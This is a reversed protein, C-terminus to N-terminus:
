EVVFGVPGDVGTGGRQRGSEAKAAPRRIFSQGGPWAGSETRGLFFLEFQSPTVFRDAPTILEDAAVPEVINATIIIALETDEREYAASRGLAGIIPLDGLGPLQDINDTFNRQLLGAISFSQGDKLDITTSARRTVLGPIVFDALIIGSAPDLESVEPEVVLNITDGIVTPTFSLRVGFERFEIQINVGAAGNANNVGAPIPFEGGALFSATQGSVAILNPEALVSVIGKTELADLLLDVDVAGIPFSGFAAAFKDPDQILGNLFQSGEGVQAGNPVFNAATPRGSSFSGVERGNGFFIDTSIGVEKLATRQVEAFRVSLMVQQSQKIGLMNVVQGGPAFNAALTAANAAVASDSVVGSLIIANGDGRVEITEDPMMDFLRKRLGLVDHGVNLDAVGLLRKGRGFMTLSTGGIQKGIVYISRDTLPIVDAIDPNGVLVDTVPQDFRLVTSKGTPVSVAEGLRGEVGNFNIIQERSELAQAAAATPLVPLLALALMLSALVGRAVFAGSVVHHTRRVSPVSVSGSRTM